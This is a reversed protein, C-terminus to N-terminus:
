LSSLEPKIPLLTLACSAHEFVTIVSMYRAHFVPFATTLLPLRWVSVCLGFRSIFQLLGFLFKLHYLGILGALHTRPRRGFRSGGVPFPAVETSRYLACSGPVLRLFNTGSMVKKESPQTISQESNAFKVSHTINVLKVNLAEALSLAPVPLPYPLTAIIAPDPDNHYLTLVNLASPPQSANCSV